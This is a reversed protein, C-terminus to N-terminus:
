LVGIYALENSNSSITCASNCNTIYGYSNYGILGGASKKCNIIGTSYCQILKGYLNKGALAGAYDGSATINVNIIGINIVKAGSGLAGFLGLNNPGTITLNSITHGKGDLTGTFPISKFDASPEDSDPAIVAKSFM